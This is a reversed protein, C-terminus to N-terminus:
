EGEAIHWCVGALDILNIERGYPYQTPEKIKINFHRTLEKRKLEEWCQDLSNVTMRMMLNEAFHKDDYRQLIFRCADKCFGTYGDAEWTIEFGLQLFLERSKQFDGGSPIFPELSNFKVM